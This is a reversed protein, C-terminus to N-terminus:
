VSKILQLMPWMLAGYVLIIFCGLVIFFLPQIIAIAKMMKREIKEALINAYTALDKELQQQDSNKQFLNAFQKELFPQQKLLAIYHIGNSLQETMLTAYYAIIPLKQQTALNNLVQKIPMGTKLLMSMHTAFFFTTQVTLFSRFVPIRKYLSLQREISFRKKVINWILIFLVFLIIVIILLSSLFDILLIFHIVTKAADDHSSFLDLFTPFISQKIVILLIIFIIILILPYRIVRLFKEVNTVRQKFMEICRALSTELDGNMRVFYLYSTVFSDFKVKQFAEDVTLGNILHNKITEAYQKMDKDLKMMQLAEILSYGNSLLRYLRELFQLQQKRHLTVQKYKRIFYNNKLYSVMHM